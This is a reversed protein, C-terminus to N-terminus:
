RQYAIFAADKLARPANSEQILSITMCASLSSAAWGFARSFSMSLGPEGGLGAVSGAPAPAEVPFEFVSVSGAVPSGWGFRQHEWLTRSTRALRRVVYLREATAMARSKANGTFMASWCFKM